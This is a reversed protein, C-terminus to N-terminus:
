EVSALSLLFHEEYVKGTAYNVTTIIKITAKYPKPLEVTDRIGISESMKGKIHKKGFELHFTHNTVDAGKLQGIVNVIEESEKSTSQITNGLAEFEPKQKFLRAKVKNERSWQIESGLGANSQDVAWEYMKWIPAVGLMDAFVRVEESTAVNAMEFVTKMTQDLLTDGSLLRENPMTLVVGVSGPVTYAFNFTTANISESGVYGREKPRDHKIADYVVSFLNQFDLLTKSLSKVAIQQDQETFLRYTCIDLREKSSIISFADELAKQREQLSQLNIRLSATDPYNIIARETREIASVTDQIKGLVDILESM